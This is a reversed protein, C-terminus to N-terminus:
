FFLFVIGPINKSIGEIYGFIKRLLNVSRRVKMRLVGHYLKKNEYKKKWKTKQFYPKSFQNIPIKLERSWFRELDRIKKAYEAASSPGAGQALSSKALTLLWARAAQADMSAAARTSEEKSGYKGSAM